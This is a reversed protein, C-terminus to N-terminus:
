ENQIVTCQLHWDLIEKTEFGLEALELLGTAGYSVGQNM